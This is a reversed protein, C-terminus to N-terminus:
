QGQFPPGYELQIFAQDALPITAPDGEYIETGVTARIEHQADVTKDLLQTESLPEGWIQFFQGLTFITDAPAEVHILGEQGSGDHTHLWYLCGRKRGVDGPVSFQEGEIFIVLRTHIHYDLREGRQCEVGAIPAAADGASGGALALIVLFAVV